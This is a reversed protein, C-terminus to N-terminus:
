APRSPWDKNNTIVMLASALMWLTWDLIRRLFHGPPDAPAEGCIGRLQSIQLRASWTLEWPAADLGM